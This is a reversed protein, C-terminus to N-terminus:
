FSSIWPANKYYQEIVKQTYTYDDVCQGGGSKGIHPCHVDPRFAVMKEHVNRCLLSNMGLEFSQGFRVDKTLFHICDDDSDYQQNEGKCHRNHTKCVSEALLTTAKQAAVLPDSDVTLLLVQLLNAFWKFVVDYQTIEKAENYTMWTGITVPLTLNRFTPFTFNIRTTASAINQNATFQEIEFPGM